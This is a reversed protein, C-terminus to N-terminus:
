QRLSSGGVVHLGTSLFPFPLPPLRLPRLSRNHDRQGLDRHHVNYETKIIYEMGNQFIYEM